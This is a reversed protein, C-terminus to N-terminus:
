KLREYVAETFAQANALAKDVKGGTVMEPDNMMATLDGGYAFLESFAARAVLSPEIM